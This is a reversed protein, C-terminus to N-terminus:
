QQDGGQVTTLARDLVSPGKNPPLKSGSNGSPEAVDTHPKRKLYHPPRPIEHKAQLRYSKQEAPRGYFQLTKPLNLSEETLPLRDNIIADLYYRNSRKNRKGETSTDHAVIPWLMISALTIAAIVVVSILIVPWNTLPEQYRRHQVQRPKSPTSEAAM